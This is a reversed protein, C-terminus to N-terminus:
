LITKRIRKDKIDLFYFRLFGNKENKKKQKIIFLYLGRYYNRQMVFHIM